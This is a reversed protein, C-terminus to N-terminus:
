GPESPERVLGALHGCDNHSVLAWLGGEHAGPLHVRSHRWRSIATYESYQFACTRWQPGLGLYVSMAADQTEAHGVILVRAGPHRDPLTSLFAGARCMYSGWSEAGPIPEAEPAFPPITAIRNTQVNWPDGPGHVASRLDAVISLELRLAKAIPEATEICRRRPSVYLVDFSEAAAALHAAAYEAQAHGRNTLGPCAEAAYGIELNAVAEGHRVIAVHTAPSMTTWSM